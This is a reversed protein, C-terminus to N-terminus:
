EGTYSQSKSATYSQFDDRSLTLEITNLTHHPEAPALCNKPWPRTNLVNSAVTPPPLHRQPESARTRFKAGVRSDIREYNSNVISDTCLSMNEHIRWVLYYRSVQLAPSKRKLCGSLTLWICKGGLNFTMMLLGRDPTWTEMSLTVQKLNRGLAARLLRVPCPWTGTSTWKLPSFPIM